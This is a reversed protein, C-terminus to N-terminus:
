GAGQGCHLEAGRGIFDYGLRCSLLNAQRKRFAAGFAAQQDKSLVVSILDELEEAIPVTLRRVILPFTPGESWYPNAEGTPRFPFQSGM